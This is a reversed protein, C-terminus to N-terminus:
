APHREVARLRKSLVVLLHEAISPHEHLLPRFNPRWMSLVKVPTRARVSASRPEGDLLSMEGFYEGEGLIAQVQGDVLVDVQGEVVLFFLGGPSDQTVIELGEPFEEVDSTSLVKRLDREALGQFLDVKGLLEIMPDAKAM